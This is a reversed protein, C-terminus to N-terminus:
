DGGVRKGEVGDPIKALVPEWEGIGRRWREAALQEVRKRFAGAGGQEEVVDV